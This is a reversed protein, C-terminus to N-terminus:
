PHLPFGHVIQQTILEPVVKALFVRGSYSQLIQTAGQQLFLPLLKYASIKVEKNEMSCLYSMKDHYDQYHLKHEM